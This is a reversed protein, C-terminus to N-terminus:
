IDGVIDVFTHGATNKFMIKGFFVFSKCVVAFVKELM